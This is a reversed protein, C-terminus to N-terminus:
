LWVRGYRRELGPGRGSLVMCYRSAGAAAAREAESLIEEEAKMPYSEIPVKSDKRQSCSGCDEACRGSQVNNLLQLMVTRGYYKLRPEFAAQLLPLLAVEEGDLIWRADSSPIAEDNLAMRALATYKEFM